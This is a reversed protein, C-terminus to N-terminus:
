FALMVLCLMLGLGASVWMWPSRQRQPGSGAEAVRAPTGNQKPETAPAAAGVAPQAPLEKKEVAPLAQSVRIFTGQMPVGAENWAAKFAAVLQGAEEFRDNREKALAKLLVR